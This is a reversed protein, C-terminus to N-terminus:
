VPRRRAACSAPSAGLPGAAMGPPWPPGFPTQGRGRRRLRANGVGQCRVAGRGPATRREAKAQEPWATLPPPEPDVPSRRRGPLAEGPGGSAGWVAGATRARGRDLGGPGGGSRRERACRFAASRLPKRTWRGSSPRRPERPPSPTRRGARPRAGRRSRHWPHPSSRGGYQFVRPTGCQRDPGSPVAGDAERFGVTASPTCYPPAEDRPVIRRDAPRLNM